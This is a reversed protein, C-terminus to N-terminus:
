EDSPKGTATADKSIWGFVLILFAAIIGQESPTITFIGLTHLVVAVAGIIATITTKWSTFGGLIMELIKNM